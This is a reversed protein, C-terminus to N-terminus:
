SVKEVVEQNLSSRHTACAKKELQTHLTMWYTGITKGEFMMAQLTGQALKFGKNEFLPGMLSLPVQSTDMKPQIGGYGKNM